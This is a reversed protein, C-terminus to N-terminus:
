NFREIDLCRREWDALLFTGSRLGFADGALLWRRAALRRLTAATLRPEVGLLRSLAPASAYGAISFHHRILREAAQSVTLKRAEGVAQLWHNAVTGWVYSFPEDREGVKLVLFREQLEKMARDFEARRSSQAYGSSLKLQRTEAVPHRSLADMVLKACRSLEGRRFLTRYSAGPARLRLFAPLLALSIFAPRGAVVKGYYVKRQTPLVDKLRWTVGIAYDHQIHHPLPPEREGLLAERLCPVGLGPTFATCFGVEDIFALAEQEGRLRRAPTRRFNFDRLHELRQAVERLARDSQVPTIM